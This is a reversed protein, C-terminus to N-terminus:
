RPYIHFDKSKFDYNKFRKDVCGSKMNNQEHNYTEYNPIAVRVHQVKRVYGRDLDCLSLLFLLFSLFFYFSRENAKSIFGM